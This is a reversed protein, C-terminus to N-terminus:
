LPYPIDTLRDLEHESQVLISVMHCLLVPSGSIEGGERGREREGTRGGVGGERGGRGREWGEM